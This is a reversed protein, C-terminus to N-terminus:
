PHDALFREVDLRAPMSPQAGPRTVSLAAAASALRGASELSLGDALGVAFAGNFADGAATTDVATVDFAPWILDRDAGFLRAGLGGLKVLVHSAGADVLRRARRRVTGPDAGGTHEGCLLALETENPTLFDCSRLLEDPLPAAPAPDLIVIAGGARATAAARAVVALPIELQLLVVRARAIIGAAHDLSDPTWTGNAGPVVVITNQASSDIGIVAVGSSVTDDTAVLDVDVGAAALETRLWSGHADGGVRGVMTVRAGLRAAACAQNGGKGGPFVRFDEGLLTEGPVPFRAMRVVFDANLSGVVVIGASPPGASDAVSSRGGDTAM